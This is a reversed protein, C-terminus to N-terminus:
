PIGDVHDEYTSLMPVYSGARHHLNLQVSQFDVDDIPMVYGQSVSLVM